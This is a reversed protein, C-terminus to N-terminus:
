AITLLSTASRTWDGRVALAVRLAQEGGRLLTWDEGGIWRAVVLDTALARDLSQALSSAPAQSARPSVTSWADGRRCFAIVATGLISSIGAILEAVSHDDDLDAEGAVIAETLAQAQEDSIIRVNSDNPGAMRSSEAFEATLSVKSTLVRVKPRGTM